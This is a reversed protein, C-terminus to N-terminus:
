IALDTLEKRIQSIVTAGGARRFSRVKGLKLQITEAVEAKELEHRRIAAKLHRMFSRRSVPGLRPHFLMVALAMQDFVPSLLTMDEKALPEAESDNGKAMEVIANANRALYEMCRNDLMLLAMRGAVMQGRLTLREDNAINLCSQIVTPRLYGVVRAAMLRDFQRKAFAVAVALVALACLIAVHETSM